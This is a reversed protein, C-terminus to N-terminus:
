PLSTLLERANVLLSEVPIAPDALEIDIRTMKVKSDSFGFIGLVGALQHALLQARSRVEDDSPSQVLSELTSCLTELDREAERRRSTWMDRLVDHPSRASPSAEREPSMESLM